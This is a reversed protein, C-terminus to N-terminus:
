HGADVPKAGPKRIGSSLFFAFPLSILLAVGLLWCLDEFSLVTAQIQLGSQIAQLGNKTADVAALGQQQFLASL